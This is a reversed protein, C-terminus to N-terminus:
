QKLTGIMKVRELVDDLHPANSMAATLDLGATHEGQHDGDIWLFSDTVDYIKGKYAVYAPKGNKGDYQKLEDITFQKETSLVVGNPSKTSM